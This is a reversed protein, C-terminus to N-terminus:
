RGRRGNETCACGAGASRRRSSERRRRRRPSCIERDRPSCRATEQRRARDGSPPRRPARVRPEDAGRACHHAVVQRPPARAAVRRDREAPRRPPAARSRAAISRTTGDRAGRSPGKWCIRISAAVCLANPRHCASVLGDRNGSRPPRRARRPPSRRRRWRNGSIGGPGDHGVQDRPEDEERDRDERHAAVEPAPGGPGHPRPARFAHGAAARFGSPPARRSSTRRGSPAISITPAFAQRTGTSPAAGAGQVGDDSAVDADPAVRRGTQGSGPAIAIAAFRATTSRIEALPVAHADLRDPRPM